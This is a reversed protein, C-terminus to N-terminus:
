TLPKVFVGEKVQASPNLILRDGDGIGSAQVYLGAYEGPTFPKKSVSYDANMVYVFYVGDTDSLMSMLPVVPVNDLVGTTVSADISYGPRLPIEGDPKIEVTLVTELSNNVQKREALPLIRIVTGNYSETGLAAGKIQAQQGVAIDKADNEPINVTIVINDLSLDAIEMMMRGPSGIDGEAALLTLVTGSAPAYEYIIFDDISKKIQKIRLRAQEVSIERAQQVSIELAEIQNVSKEDDLRNKITNYQSRAYSLNKEAM